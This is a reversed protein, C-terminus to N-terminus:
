AFRRSPQARWSYVAQRDHFWETRAASLCLRTGKLRHRKSRADSTTRAIPRDPITSADGPV